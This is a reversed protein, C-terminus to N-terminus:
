LTAWIINLINARCIEIALLTSMILKFVFSVAMIM